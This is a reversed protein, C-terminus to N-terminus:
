QKEKRKNEQKPDFEVHIHSDEAVVDYEDGLCERLEQAFEEIRATPMDRTRIDIALGDNHLSDPKHEHSDTGATIVCDLGNFLKGCLGTSVFAALLIEPKLGKVKAPKKGETKIKLMKFDKFKRLAPAATTDGENVNTGQLPLGLLKRTGTGPM